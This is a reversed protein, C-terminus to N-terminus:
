RVQGLYNYSSLSQIALHISKELTNAPVVQNAYSKIYKLANIRELGFTLIHIRDHQIAYWAMSKHYQILEEDPNPNDTYAREIACLLRCIEPTLSTMDLAEDQTVGQAVIITGPHGKIMFEEFQDQDAYSTWTRVGYAGGMTEDCEFVVNYSDKPM